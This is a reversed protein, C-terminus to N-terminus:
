STRSSRSFSLPKRSGHSIPAELVGAEVSRASPMFSGSTRVASLM